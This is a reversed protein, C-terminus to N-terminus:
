DDDIVIKKRKHDWCGIEEHTKYDYLTNDAAKLYKKGLIEFETVALEEEDDSSAEAVDSSTSPVEVPAPKPKPTSSVTTSEQAKTVLDKILDEGANTSVVQKDKKPRGRPKKQPEDDSGSTDVTTTDKKPRGRQARKVTFQSEPITLGLSTAAIEAETRSINLKEMINGYSVPAKGKPDRFSEGQKIRDMIYGYTPKGNSNKETQKYCTQCLNVGDSNEVTHPNQCQTYLGHNLRIAACNEECMSGCFPLVVKTGSGVGKKREVKKSKEVQVDNLRVHELGEGEDFGYKSSLEKVVESGFKRMLDEMVRETSRCMSVEM